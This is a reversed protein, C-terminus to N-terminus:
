ARRTMDVVCFLMARAGDMYPFFIVPLIAWRCKWRMSCKGDWRFRFLPPSRPPQTADFTGEMWYVTLYQQLPAPFRWACGQLQVLLVIVYIYRPSVSSCFVAMSGNSCGGRYRSSRFYFCCSLPLLRGKECKVDVKMRRLASSGNM